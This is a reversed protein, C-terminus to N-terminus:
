GPLPNRAMVSASRMGVMLFVIVVVIVVAGVVNLVFDNIKRTVTESQDSVYAVAIDPPLVKDEVTLRHVVAKADTCVDVINAGKKMSFAVTVCRESGEADGFRTIAQPPDMYDRKVNLGLDRLYVPVQAKGEGAMGVVISGM